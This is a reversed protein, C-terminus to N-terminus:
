CPKPSSCRSTTGRRPTMPSARVIEAQTEPSAPFIDGTFRSVDGAANIYVSQGERYRSYTALGLEELMSLLATQDPSVWQGGLELLTGGIVETRLRGGIRDRAELVTVTLGQQTLDTAITLGTVGAGVVVIDSTTEPM